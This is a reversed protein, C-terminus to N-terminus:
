ILVRQPNKPPRIKYGLPVVPPTPTWKKTQVGFSCKHIKPCRDIKKNVIRLTVRPRPNGTLSSFDKQKYLSRQTLSQVLVRHLLVLWKRLLFFLFSNLISANGHIKSCFWHKMGTIGCLVHILFIKFGGLSGLPTGLVGGLNWLVIALPQWKTAM